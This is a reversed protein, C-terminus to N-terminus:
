FGQLAEENDDFPIVDEAALASPARGADPNRATGAVALTASTARPTTQWASAPRSSQAQRRKAEQSLQFTGVLHRMEASQGSLEEATSAAEEANAANQQTVQNLQEVATNLQKIGEQQQDSSVAIEGMVENVKHVQEAIEQLKGLVEQNLSVGDSAKQVAEDIRDATDKAADASRIALNRVEEAVVAFGKGADGARAAEVAANLALLNTQFAIEEITKVIKATEDSAAKIDKMAQSLRQMSSTGQDASHRASDALSRAEQANAANQQSMSAMEQLSSAIEELTSAQESAGQALAQSGSSIQDSASAVQESSMAVQRLAQDLNHVATNFAVQMATYAAEYTGEIQVTLERAAVRQLAASAKALFSAAADRQEAVQDHL